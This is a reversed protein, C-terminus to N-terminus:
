LWSPKNPWDITTPFGSQQPVSLLAQRYNQLEIQQETTLEAYWIANVRDVQSLLNNRQRRIASEAQSQDLEWIKSDVNWVHNISPKSSKTQVIKTNIDVYHDYDNYSGLIANDPLIVAVPDSITSLIQGTSPNYISYIM